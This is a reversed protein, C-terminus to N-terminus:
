YADLFLVSKVYEVNRESIVVSTNVQDRIEDTLAFEKVLDKQALAAIDSQQLLHPEMGPISSEITKRIKGSNVGDMVITPTEALLSLIMGHYRSTLVVDFLRYADLVTPVDTHETTDVVQVGNVEAQIRDYLERDDRSQIYLVPVYRESLQTILEIYEEDRKQRAAQDKTTGKDLAAGVESALSIGLLPKEATTKLSRLQDLREGSQYKRGLLPIYRPLLFALDRTVYVPTRVGAEDSLAQADKEDRVTVLDALPLSERYRRKGFDTQIGQVGVGLAITKKGMYYGHEIFRLYNDVNDKSWDYFVGGGGLVVVDAWEVEERRFALEAYRVDAEYLDSFIGETVMSVINDGVNGMQAASVILVKM